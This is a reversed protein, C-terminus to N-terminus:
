WENPNKIIDELVKPDCDELTHEEVYEAAIIDLGEYATEKDVGCYEEMEKVGREFCEMCSPMNCDCEDM